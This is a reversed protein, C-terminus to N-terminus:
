LGDKSDDDTSMWQAGLIWRDRAQHKGTVMAVIAAM